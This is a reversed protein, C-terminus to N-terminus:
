KLILPFKQEIPLMIFISSVLHGQDRNSISIFFTIRVRAVAAMITEANAPSLVGLSIAHATMFSWLTLMLVAVLALIYASWSPLRYKKQQAPQGSANLFSGALNLSAGLM